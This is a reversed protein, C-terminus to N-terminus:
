NPTWSSSYLFGLRTTRPLFGKSQSYHLEWLDTFPPTVTKGRAFPLFSMAALLFSLAMRRGRAAGLPPHELTYKVATAGEHPLLGPEINQEQALLQFGQPLLGSQQTTPAGM